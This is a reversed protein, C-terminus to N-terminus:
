RFLRRRLLASRLRSQLGVILYLVPNQDMEAEELHFSPVPLLLDRRDLVRYMWLAGAQNDVTDKFHSYFM